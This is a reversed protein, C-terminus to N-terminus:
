EYRLAEVPDLNSARIAPLLGSIAGIFTTLALVGLVLWPPFSIFDKIPLGQSAAFSNAIANLIRALGFSAALGILGGLLGLTAAESLFMTRINGKTAGCARLIGIERIREYTAMIMSNIIGLAAVFLVIGGIAGIILGILTFIKKINDLMDKATLVGFGLNKIEKGAAEINETTDVKALISGYGEREFFNDKNLVMFDSYNYQINNVSSELAAKHADELENFKAEKAYQGWGQVNMQYELDQRKQNYETNIQDELTKRQEDLSKMREDDTRWYVGVMLRKAWDMTVYNQNDNGAAIGVIEAPIEVNPNDYMKNDSQNQPKPPLAGWDVYQQVYIIIKKGILEKPNSSYGFNSALEGGIVIKDMDGAKLQRGAIVDLNLVTTEPNIGLINGYFRKAQGELKVSKSWVALTPTVDTIHPLSRILAVTSDNMQQLSDDAGKNQDLLNGSSQIEPNPSISILTLGGIQELQSMAVNRAGLVLSLMIVMSIAGIVVAFITLFSRSKRRWINRLGIAAYDFLKMEAEL